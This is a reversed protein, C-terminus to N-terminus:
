MARTKKKDTCPKRAHGGSSCCCLHPKIWTFQPICKVSENCFGWFLKCTFFHFAIYVYCVFHLHIQITTVYTYVHNPCSSWLRLKLCCYQCLVFTTTQFSHFASVNLDAKEHVCWVGCIKGLLCAWIYIFVCAGQFRSKKFPCLCVAILGSDLIETKKARPSPRKPPTKKLHRPESSSARGTHTHTRTHGQASKHPM